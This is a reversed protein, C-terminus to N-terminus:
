CRERATSLTNSIKGKNINDRDAERKEKNSEAGNL